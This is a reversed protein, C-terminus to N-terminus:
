ERALRWALAYDRGPHRRELCVVKIGEAQLKEGIAGVADLCFVTPRIQRRLQRITEAVLVEAGAVQMAHVVFGVRIAEVQCVTERLQRMRSGLIAQSNATETVVAM